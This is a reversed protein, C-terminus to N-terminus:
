SKKEDGGSAAPAPAKEGGSSCAALGLAASAGLAVTLLQRRNLTIDQVSEGLADTARKMQEAADRSILMQRSMKEFALDQKAAATM